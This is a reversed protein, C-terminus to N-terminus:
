PGINYATLNGSIPAVFLYGDAFVTQAFTSINSTSITKLIIGNSADIVYAANDGDGYTALAIVGAGNKTPSGYVSGPLGTNWIANGTAPDLERIAGEFPVDGITTGNSAVFLRSGDWIAAAICQGPGTEFTNGAQFTWVPGAALNDLRLAYYKGNKNCAGVMPTITGGLNAQFITPSGGFDGAPISEAEPVTWIDLKALTQGDLRVISQSDGSGASGTTVLANGNTSVAVSSWVSAGVEGDPVTFYTGIPAGTAQQFAAV